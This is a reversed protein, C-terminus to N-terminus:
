IFLTLTINYNITTILIEVVTTLGEHEWVQIQSSLGVHPFSLSSYVFLHRYFQEKM